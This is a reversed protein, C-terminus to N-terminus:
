EIFSTYGQIELQHIMRATKQATRPFRANLDFENAKRKLEELDGNELDYCFCLIKELPAQLKAQTGHFKPLVKQLFQIDLATDIEFRDVM